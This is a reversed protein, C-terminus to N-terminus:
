ANKDLGVKLFTTSDASLKGQNDIVPNNENGKIWMMSCSATFFTLLASLIAVIIDRLLRKYNM